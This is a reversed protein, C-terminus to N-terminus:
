ERAERRGKSKPMGRTVQENAVLDELTPQQEEASKGPLPYQTQGSLYPRGSDEYQKIWVGPKFPPTGDIPNVWGWLDPRDKSPDEDKFGNPFLVIQGPRLTLNAVKTDVGSPDALLADIQAQAPVNAPVGDIIGSYGTKIEGTKKDAYQFAWLSFPYKADDDPKTLTGTFIPKNDGPQKYRSVPAYFNGTPQTTTM